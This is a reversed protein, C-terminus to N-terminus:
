QNLFDKMKMEKGDVCIGNMKATVVADAFLLRQRPHRNIFKRKAM